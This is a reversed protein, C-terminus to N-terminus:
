KYMQAILTRRQEPKLVEFIKRTLERRQAATPKGLTKQIYELSLAEIAAKQDATADVTKVLDEIKAKGEAIQREFARKIEVGLELLRVRNSVQKQNLAKGEEREAAAALEKSVAARYEGVMAHFVKANEPTLSGAVEEELTGHVKLEHLAEDWKSLLAIKELLNMERFGQLKLLLDYNNKVARDFIAARESILMSTNAKELESLHLQKLAAEEPPTDLRSVHGSFDRSLITPAASSTAV